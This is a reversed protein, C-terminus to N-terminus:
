ALIINEAKPLEKVIIDSIESRDLLDILKVGAIINIIKTSQSFSYRNLEITDSDVLKKIGELIGLCLERNSVINSSFFSVANGRYPKSVFFKTLHYPDPSNADYTYHAIWWMHSLANLLQSRKDGHKSMFTRVYISSDPDTYNRLNHLENLFYELYNTNELAVWIKEMAAQSPSLNILSQHIKKINRFVLDPDYESSSMELATYRFTSTSYKLNPEKFLENIQNKASEVDQTNKYIPLLISTFENKLNQLFKDTTFPINYEM